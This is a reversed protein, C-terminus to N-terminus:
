DDISIPRGYSVSARLGMERAREYVVSPGTKRDYEGKLRNHKLYLRRNEARVEQLQNLLDTTAHVHGVYLTFAGAIALLLLSFRVTSVNELFSEGAPRRRRNKTELDTWSPLATNHRVWGGTDGSTRAGDGTSTRRRSQRKSRRGNRSARNRKKSARRRSM